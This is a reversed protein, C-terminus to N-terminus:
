DRGNRLLLLNPGEGADQPQSYVPSFAETGMSHAALHDSPPPGAEQGRLHLVSFEPLDHLARNIGFLIARRLFSPALSKKRKRAIATDKM